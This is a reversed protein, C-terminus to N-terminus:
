PSSTATHTFVVPKAPRLAAKLGGADLFGACRDLMASAKIRNAPHVPHGPLKFRCARSHTNPDHPIHPTNANLKDSLINADFRYNTQARVNRHESAASRPPPLTRSGHIGFPYQGNPGEAPQGQTQPISLRQHNPVSRKRRPRPLRRPKGGSAIIDRKAAEPTQGLAAVAIAGCWKFRGLFM